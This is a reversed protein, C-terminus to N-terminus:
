TSQARHVSNGLVPRLQISSISIQSGPGGVGALLWMVAPWPGVLRHRALMALARSLQPLFLHARLFGEFSPKHHCPHTAIVPAKLSKM